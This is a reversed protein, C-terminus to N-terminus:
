MESPRLLIAKRRVRRQAVFYGALAAFTGFPVVAFSPDSVPFVHLGLYCCLFAWLFIQRRLLYGVAAGSLVSAAFAFVLRASSQLPEVSAPTKALLAAALAPIAMGLIMAPLFRRLPYRTSFPTLHNIIGRWRLKDTYVYFQGGPDLSLYGREIQYRCFDEHEQQMQAAVSDFNTPLAAPLGMTGARRDHLAKLRAIDTVAPFDQLVVHPREDFLTMSSKNRTRLLCGDSFRTAFTIARGQGVARNQGLPVTLEVLTIVCQAPDSASAYRRTLNRHYDPAALTCIPFFGLRALQQDLPRFYEEQRPTFGAPMVKQFGLNVPIRHRDSRLRKLGGFVTAIIAILFVLLDADLFHM